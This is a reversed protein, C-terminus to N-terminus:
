RNAIASRHNRVFDRAEGRASIDGKTWNDLVAQYYEAAQDADGLERYARAMGMQSWPRNPTRLLSEEFLEMAAEPEGISLMVEGALEHVPKLPNPAGRPLDQENTLAIAEELMELAENRLTGARREDAQAAARIRSLAAVEAHAVRLAENGPNEELREAMRDVVQQALGLQGLNAASLGLALLQDNHLADNLEFLEWRETEIILRARLTKVTAISRADGPNDERVEIARDIWDRARDLDMMQLDGYQGWDSSHNMDNPRDGPKWLDAGANFSRENWESVEPWMGHQIFIHTPMHLAHSVAPAIDAYTYAAQLALPAHIPDDFAHIIYHAAGPHNENQRFLETALAGAQMNIREGHEGAATAGSLLAVAYFAQVERDDPFQEYAEAMANMWATRKNGVPGETFAYAEAARLFAKERETPAKAMREEHTEGLRRLVRAPTEADWEAIFPHNYTFAEGWYAMAFDPQIEQARQFAERAQTWGFSHLYGVGLLFEQQAEPSGSTPFDFTGIDDLSAAHLRLAATLMLTTIFVRSLLSKM